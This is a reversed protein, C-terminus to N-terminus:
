ERWDCMWWVNTQHGTEMWEGHIKNEYRLKRVNFRELYNCGATYIYRVSHDKNLKIYTTSRTIYKGDNGFYYLKNGKWRYENRTVTGDRHVYYRGSWGSAGSVIIEDSGYSQGVLVTSAECPITLLFILMLIMIKKM